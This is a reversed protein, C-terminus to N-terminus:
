ERSKKRQVTTLRYHRMEEIMDVYPKIAAFFTRFEASHRFGQMHGEESDWEIRLIYGGPEDLCRTLEYGLCHASVDLSRAAEAYDREFRDSQALPVKYRIYEVIMGAGKPVNHYRKIRCEVGRSFIRVLLNGEEGHAVGLALSKDAGDVHRKGQDLALPLWHNKPQQRCAAPAEAIELGFHRLHRVFHEALLQPLQLHISQNAAYRTIRASLVHIVLQRLETAAQPRRQVRQRVPALSVM